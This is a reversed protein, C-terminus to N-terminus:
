GQSPQLHAAAAGWGVVRENVLLPQTKIKKTSVRREKAPASPVLRPLLTQTRWPQRRATVGAPGSGPGLLGQAGPHSTTRTHTPFIKWGIPPPADTQKKSENALGCVLVPTTATHTHTSPFSTHTCCVVLGVVHAGHQVHHTPAARGHLHPYSGACGAYCCCLPSILWDGTVYSSM